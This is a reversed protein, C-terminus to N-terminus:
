VVYFDSATLTTGAAVTAFEGGFPAVIIERASVIGPLLLTAFFASRLCRRLSDEIHRLDLGEKRRRAIDLLRKLAALILLSLALRCAVVAGKAYNSPDKIQNIKEFGLQDAYLDYFTVLSGARLTEIVTYTLFTFPGADPELLRFGYGNVQLQSFAVPAFVLLFSCAIMLM